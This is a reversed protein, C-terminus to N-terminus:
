GAADQVADEPALQDLRLLEGATFLRERLAMRGARDLSGLRTVGDVAQVAVISELPLDPDHLLEPSHSTLVIQRHASAEVLAERLVGAAAPHVGTEPEEIGVLGPADQFAATLVGLARLTGSSISQAPFPDEWQTLWLTVYGQVDESSVDSVGPTVAGLYDVIVRTREPQEAKMRGLVSALNGGDGSLRDGLDALQPAKLADDSFDYFRMRSLVDFVPRFVPLNSATTLYLRRGPGPAPLVPESSTVAGRRMVFHHTTTRGDLQVTCTEEVVPNRRGPSVEFEIAYEASGEALVLDLEIRVSPLARPTHAVVQGIGGRVRLAQELSSTNLADSVLHLADLFNSKGSGNPGVLFTLSRLGVRCSRISRYNRLRVEFVQAVAL